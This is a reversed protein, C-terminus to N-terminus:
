KVIKWHKINWVQPNIDKHYIKRIVGVGACTYFITTDNGQAFKCEQVQHFVTDFVKLTEILRCKSPYFHYWDTATDMSYLVPGIVDPYGTKHNFLLHKSEVFYDNTPFYTTDAASHTCFLMDYYEFSYGAGLGRGVNNFGYSNRLVFTSEKGVIQDTVYM